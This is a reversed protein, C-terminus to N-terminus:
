GDIAQYCRLTRPLDGTSVCTSHQGHKWVFASVVTDSANMGHIYFKTGHCVGISEVPHGLWIDCCVAVTSKKRPREIVDAAQLQVVEFKM